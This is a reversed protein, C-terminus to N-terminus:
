APGMAARRRAFTWTSLTLLLGVLAIAVSTDTWFDDPFLQVLRDTAPDFSWTGSAFLLEHFLTFAQEFALAFAAGVVVAGVALLAAGRGVARWYWAAGRSRVRGVVLVALAALVLLYFADVIRRVDAMHAREPATFVPAGDVSQGFTGPGLYVEGIVADTVARVTPPPYGTTLDAHVRGQEFAVWVPNFFLGIAVGALAVMTAAGIAASAPSPGSRQGRPAAATITM